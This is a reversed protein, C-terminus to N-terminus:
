ILYVTSLDLLGTIKQPATTPYKPNGFDGVHAMSKNPFEGSDRYAKSHCHYTFNWGLGSHELTYSLNM